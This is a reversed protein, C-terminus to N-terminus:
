YSIQAHRTPESIHILSLSKGAGNLGILGVIEGKNLEFNIDKIVPRKGYGGTLQEVKVTM